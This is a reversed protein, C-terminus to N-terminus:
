NKTISKEMAQLIRKLGEKTNLKMEKKVRTLYLSYSVEVLTSAM